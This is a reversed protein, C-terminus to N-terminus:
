IIRDFSINNKVFYNIYKILLNYFKKKIDNNKNIINGFIRKYRFILKIYSIVKIPKKYDIKKLIDFKYILNKIELQNRRNRMLSQNNQLYIYIYRNLYKNSRSYKKILENWINDEHYNWKNEYINKEFFNYAKIIVDKNIFKNTILPLEYKPMKSYSEFNNINLNKIQEKLFKNSKINIKKLM